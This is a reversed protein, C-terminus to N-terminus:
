PSTSIEATSGTYPALLALLAEAFVVHGAAGPHQWDARADDGYFDQRGTARLAPLTSRFPLGLEGALAAEEAAIAAHAECDGPRALRASCAALDPDALVHPVLGLVLLPVDHARAQDRMDTVAARYFAWEPTDGLTPALLGGEIRRLLASAHRLPAPLLGGDGVWVSGGGVEIVRSPIPDNTYTAYVVIEPAYAWGSERLVAAAQAADYGFHSLNLVQWPPGLRAEALRPYAEEPPGSGWTVSDGLVVVRRIGPAPAAPLEREHFSATNVAGVGPRTAFRRGSDWLYVLFREDYRCRAEGLGAVVIAVATGFAVAQHRRRRRAGRAGPLPAGRVM